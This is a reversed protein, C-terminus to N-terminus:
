NEGYYLIFTSYLLLDSVCVPIKWDIDEGYYLIFTSYLLLDSVCVPIKWDIKEGYYSIFTSYLLLDSICVPIKWTARIFTKQHKLNWCMWNVPWGLISLPCNRM